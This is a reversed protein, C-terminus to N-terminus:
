PNPNKRLVPFGRQNRLKPRVVRRLVWITAGLGFALEGIIPVFAWRDPIDNFTQGCLIGIPLLALMFIVPSLLIAIVWRWWPVSIKVPVTSEELPAASKPQVPDTM